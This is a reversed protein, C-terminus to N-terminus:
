FWEDLDKVGNFEKDWNIGLEHLIPSFKKRIVKEFMLNYDIELWKPVEMGEQICFADTGPFGGIVRKIYLLRPATEEDFKYGCHKQAYRMGRFWPSSEVEKHMARPVAFEYPNLKPFSEKLEKLMKLGSKLDNKQVVSIFFEMMKENLIKSTDSRRTEFGRIFLIDCPHDDAFTMYGVYKKKVPIWVNRRKERRKFLLRTFFKEFQVDIADSDVGSEMLRSGLYDTIIIKAAPVNELSQVKAFISDTDGYVAPFNKSELEEALGRIINRGVSTIANACDLDFLRFAPNGVVGYVGNMVTKIAADFQHARIYEPSSEGFSKAAFTKKEKSEKRIRKFDECIRPIIGPKEHKDQFRYTGGRDDSISIPGDDKKSEPSINFGIIISPYLGAADFCAIGEQMGIHPELVLGGKLVNDEDANDKKQANRGTDRSPLKQDGSIRLLYSDTIAEKSMSKDLTCGSISCIASYLEILNNKEIIGWTAKVDEKCYQIIKDPDEMWVKTTQSGLDEYDYELELKTVSKLNYSNLKGSPNKYTKYAKLGDFIIRGAIKINTYPKLIDRSELVYAKKIPSLMQSFYKRIHEMRGIIYSVDFDVNWGSILDPDHDQMLKAFKELMTAENDNKMSFEYYTKTFTDYVVICVIPYYPQKWTPVQESNIIEIDIVWTRLPIHSALVPTIEQTKANFEFGDKVKLDIMVRQPWPIDGEHTTHFKKLQHLYKPESLEVKFLEKGFISKFGPTVSNINTALIPDPVKPYESTFCYVPMNGKRIMIRSGDEARAFICAVPSYDIQQECCVYHYKM